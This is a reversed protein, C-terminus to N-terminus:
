TRKYMIIVHLVLSTSFGSQETYNLSFVRHKNKSSKNDDGIENYEHIWLDKYLKCVYYFHKCVLTHILPTDNFWSM